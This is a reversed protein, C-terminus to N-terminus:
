REALWWCSTLQTLHRVAQRATNFMAALTLPGPQVRLLPSDISLSHLNQQQWIVCAASQIFLLSLSLLFNM